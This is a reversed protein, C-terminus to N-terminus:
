SNILVLGAILMVGQSCGATPTYENKSQEFGM